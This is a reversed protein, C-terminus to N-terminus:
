NKMFLTFFLTFSQSEPILWVLRQFTDLTEAFVATAMKLTFIHQSPMKPLM